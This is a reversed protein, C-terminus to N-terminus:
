ELSKRWRHHKSQSTEMVEFICGAWYNRLGMGRAEGSLKESLIIKKTAIDFFTVYIYGTQTIKNFAEVIFVVGLGSNENGSYNRVIDPIEEKTLNYNQNTVMKGVDIKQNIAEVTELNLIVKSKKFFKRIEYKDPESIVLNNWSAFFRGKIDDPNTFGDTGILKAHSFDIGYWVMTESNFLQYDSQPFCHVSIFILFLTLKYKM